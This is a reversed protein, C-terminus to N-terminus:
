MSDPLFPDRTEHPPLSDKPPNRGTPDAHSPAVDNGPTPPSLSLCPTLYLHRRILVSSRAFFLCVFLYGGGDWCCCCFFFFFSFFSVGIVWGSISLVFAPAHSFLYLAFDLRTALGSIGGLDEALTRSTAPFYLSRAPSAMPLAQASVLFIKVSNRIRSTLALCEPQCSHHLSPSPTTSPPLSPSPTTSLPLYITHNLSLSPSPTTSPLPSFIQHVSSNHLSPILLFPPPLSELPTTSPPFSFPLLVSPFLFPCAAARFSM